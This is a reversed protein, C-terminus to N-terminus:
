CFVQARIQKAVLLLQKGVPGDPPGTFALSRQTPITLPLKQSRVYPLSSSSSTHLSRPSETCSQQLEGVEREELKILPM